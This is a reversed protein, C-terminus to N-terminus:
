ELKQLAEVLELTKIKKHDHQSSEGWSKTEVEMWHNLRKDRTLALYGVINRIIYDGCLAYGWYTANPQFFVTGPGHKMAEHIPTLTEPASLLFLLVDSCFNSRFHAFDQIGPHPIQVHSEVHYGYRYLSKGLLEQFHPHKRGFEVLKLQDKLNLHRPAFALNYMDALGPIGMYAEVRKRIGTDAFCMLLLPFDEPLDPLAEFIKDIYGCKKLIYLLHLIEGNDGNLIELPTAIEKKPTASEPGTRFCYPFNGGVETAARQLLARLDFTEPSYTAFFYNIYPMSYRCTSDFDAIEYADTEYKRMSEELAPRTKLHEPTTARQNYYNEATVLKLIYADEGKQIRHNPVIIDEMSKVPLPRHELWILPPCDSPFPFRKQLYEKDTKKILSHGELYDHIKNHNSAWFFHGAGYMHGKIRTEVAEKERGLRLLWWTKLNLYDTSYGLYEDKERSMQDLFYAVDQPDADEDELFAQYDNWTKYLTRDMALLETPTMDKHPIATDWLPIDQVEKSPHLASATKHVFDKQESQNQPLLAEVLALTGISQHANRTEATWSKTEVELWHPLRKDRTLALYGLVNRKLYAECTVFGHYETTPEVFQTGPGHRFLDNFQELSDSLQFLLVDSCFAGRFHAFEQFNWNPSPLHPNYLHYGYRGVSYGLLEQFHPHKRGFEILKLQEDVHLRRPAFALDYMAALGPIGMYEEVRKRIDTDAFCMLLLPFDESLDPLANFIEDIYGCKKLIYLLHIVEGNGAHNVQMDTEFWGPTPSEPGAKLYHAFYGGTETDAQHLLAKIDLERVTCTSLFANIFPMRYAPRGASHFDLLDYADNEYKRISEALLPNFKLNRPTTAWEIDPSAYFRFMYADEGQQISHSRDLYNQMNKVPLPGRELWVLPPCGSSDYCAQKYAEDIQEILLSRELTKRIERDSKWNNGAGYILAAFRTNEIENNRKMRLLWWVKLDLYPTTYGLQEDEKRALQELFYAADEKSTSPSSLFTEYEKWTNKLTRDMELLEDPTKAM